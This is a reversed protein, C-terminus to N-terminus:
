GQFYGSRRLNSDLRTAQTYLVCFEAWMPM